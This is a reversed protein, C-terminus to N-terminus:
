RTATVRPYPGNAALADEYLNAILYQATCQSCANAENRECDNKHTNAMRIIPEFDLLPSAQARSASQQWLQHTSCHIVCLLTPLLQAPHLVSAAM